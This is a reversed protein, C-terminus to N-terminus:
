STHHVVRNQVQRDIQASTVLSVPHSSDPLLDLAEERGQDSMRQRSRAAKFSGNPWGARELLRARPPPCVDAPMRGMSRRKDAGALMAAKISHELLRECRGEGIHQRWRVLSSPDCPLAHQFDRQASFYQQSPIVIHREVM